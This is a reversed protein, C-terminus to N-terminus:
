PGPQPTPPVPGLDLAPKVQGRHCTTCNVMAPEGEREPFGTITKSVEAALDAMRRTIAKQPKADSSWDAPTHCHVCTVGLSRAYGFEMIALVRGAPVGKFRRINKFVTEAPEKERGAIQTRLQALAAAQDFTIPQEEAIPPPALMSKPPAPPPPPSPPPTPPQGTAAGGLVLSLLTLALANKLPEEKPIDPFVVRLKSIPEQRPREIIDPWSGLAALFEAPWKDLGEPTQDKPDRPQSM